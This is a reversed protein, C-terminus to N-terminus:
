TPNGTPLGKLPGLVLLYNTYFGYSTLSMICRFMMAIVCGLNYFLGHLISHLTCLDSKFKINKSPMALGVKFDATKRSYNLALDNILFDAMAGMFGVQLQIFIVQVAVVSVVQSSDVSMITSSKMTNAMYYNLSLQVPISLGIIMLIMMVQRRGLKLVLTAAFQLSVIRSLSQVVLCVLIMQFLIFNIPKSRDNGTCNACDTQDERFPMITKMLLRSDRLLYELYGSFFCMQHMQYIAGLLLFFVSDLTFSRKDTTLIRIVDALNREEEVVYKEFKANTEFYPLFDSPLDYIPWTKKPCRKLEKDQTLYDEYLSFKNRDYQDMQDPQASGVRARSIRNEYWISRIHVVEGTVNCEDEDNMHTVEGKNLNSMNAASISLISPALKALGQNLDARPQNYLALNDFNLLTKFKRDLQGTHNQDDNEMTMLSTVILHIVLAVLQISLTSNTFTLHQSAGISLMELICFTSFAVSLASMTMYTIFQYHPAIYKSRRSCYDIALPDILNHISQSSCQLIFLLTITVLAHILKVGFSSGSLDSHALTNTTYMYTIHVILCCSILRILVSRHENRQDAYRAIKVSLFFNLLNTALLVLHTFDSCWIQETLLRATVSTGLDQLSSNASATPSIARKSEIPEWVLQFFEDLMLHHNSLKTISFIIYHLTFFDM